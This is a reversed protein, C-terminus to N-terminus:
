PRHVFLRIYLNAANVAKPTGFAGLDHWDTLSQNDREGLRGSLLAKFALEEFVADLNCDRM